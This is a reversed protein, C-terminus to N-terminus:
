LDSWDFFDPGAQGKLEEGALDGIQIAEDTTFSGTQSTTLTRKGDPSAVLGDFLLGGTDTTCITLFYVGGNFYRVTTM